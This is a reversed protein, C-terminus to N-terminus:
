AILEWDNGGLERARYAALSDAIKKGVTDKDIHTTDIHVVPIAEVNERYYEIADSYNDRLRQLDVVNEHPQGITGKDRRHVTRALATEPEADLWVIMDSRHGVVRSLARMSRLAIGGLARGGYHKGYVVPDIVLERAAVIAEPRRRAISPYVMRAQNALHLGNVALILSRSHRSDAIDRLREVRSSGLDIEDRSDPTVVYNPNGMRGLSRFKGAEISQEIASDVSHDKGTGDIGTVSIKNPKM